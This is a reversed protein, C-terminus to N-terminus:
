ACLFVAALHLSLERVIEYEIDPVRPDPVPVAIMLPRERIGLMLSLSSDWGGTADIRKMSESFMELISSEVVSDGGRLLVVSSVHVDRSAFSVLAAGSDSTIRTKVHSINGPWEDSFSDGRNKLFNECVLLWKESLDSVLWEGIGEMEGGFTFPAVYFSNKM